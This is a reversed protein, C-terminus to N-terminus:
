CDPNPQNVWTVVGSGETVTPDLTFTFGYATGAPALTAMQFVRIEGPALAYVDSDIVLGAVEAADRTSGWVGSIEGYATQVASLYMQLVPFVEYVESGNNHVELQWAHVQRPSGDEAPPAPYTVIAHLRFAVQVPSGPSGVRVLDDVYFGESPVPLGGPPLTPIIIPSGPLVATPVACNFYPEDVLPTGACALIAFLMFVPAVLVYISRLLMM